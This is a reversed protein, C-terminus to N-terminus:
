LILVDGDLTLAEGDITLIDNEHNAENLLILLILSDVQIILNQLNMIRTNVSAALSAGETITALEFAIRRTSRLVTGLRTTVISDTNVVKDFSDADLSANDIQVKTIVPM